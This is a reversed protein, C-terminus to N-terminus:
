ASRMAACTSSYRSSTSPRRPVPRNYTGHGPQLIELPSPESPAMQQSHSISGTLETIQHLCDPVDEDWDEDTQMWKITEIVEPVSVCVSLKGLIDEAEHFQTLVDDDADVASRMTEVLDM